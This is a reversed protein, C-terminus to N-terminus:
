EEDLSCHPSAPGTYLPCTRLSMVTSSRDEFEDELPGVHELVKEAPVVIGLIYGSSEVPAYAYYRDTGKDNVREVGVTGTSMKDLVSTFQPSSGEFDEDTIPKGLDEKNTISPHVITTYDDDILFAYGDLFDIDLITKQIDMLLMDIGIVGVFQNDANVSVSITIVPPYPPNADAYPAGVFVEGNNKRADKYWDRETPNFDAPIPGHWPYSRHTEDPMGMYLWYLTEHQNKVERFAFDLKASNNISGYHEEVTTQDRIDDPLKYCSHEYSIDREVGFYSIRTSDPPPDLHYYSQREPITDPNEWIGAATEGLMATADKMHSIELDIGSAVSTTMAELHNTAQTEMSDSAVGTGIEGVNDFAWISIVTLSVLSLAVFVVMTLVIKQRIGMGRRKKKAKM